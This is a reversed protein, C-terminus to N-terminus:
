RKLKPVKKELVTHLQIEDDILDRSYKQELRLLYIDHHIHEAAVAVMLPNKTFTGIVEGGPDGSSILVQSNDAVLIMRKVPTELCKKPNYYLEVELGATDLKEFSFVIVRVKRGLLETIERSFLSLSYNTNIYVEKQAEQLLARAKALFNDAGKFNWYQDNRAAVNFESMEKELIDLSRNVGSKLHRVLSVPDQPMYTVPEGPLMYVSGKKYLSELGMYVSTRPLNLSKAIQSGNLGSHKLLEVYIMAEIRTYDFHQLEDIISSM